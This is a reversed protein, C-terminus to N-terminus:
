LSAFEDCAKVLEKSIEPDTAFHGAGPVIVLKSRPLAKHLDWASQVPCVADYRGHVIICPIHQIRHIEELIQNERIYCGNMLYIFELTAHHLVWKEDEVKKLTETDLLLTSRTIDWTVLAKATDLRIQRDESTLRDYTVQEWNKQEEETYYSM